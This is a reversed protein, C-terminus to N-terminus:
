GRPAGGRPTSQFLKGELHIKWDYTGESGIIGIIMEEPEILMISHCSVPFMSFMKKLQDKKTAFMEPM